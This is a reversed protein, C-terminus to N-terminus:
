QKEMGAAVVASTLKAIETILQERLEEPTGARVNMGLDQLRQLMDPQALAANIDMNLRVIIARPTNAPAAIGNWSTVQYNPIGSEMFTPVNALSPFRTGSSVALAKLEGSKILSMVSAVMDFAVQIDNSKVATILMPTTKFPVITLPLGTTGKFLEAALHQTSGISGGSGINLKDPNTRALSLVDAISNLSSGKNVLLAINFYGIGSVPAFDRVIDYPLSKFLAVSAANGSNILFLTYGDPAAKAVTEAALIQGAGPRNDVIVQQGLSVSLKQAVLRAIVDAVGGAGFGVVFRIPKSPYQQAHANFLAAASFSAVAVCKAFLKLLARISVMRAPVGREASATRYPDRDGVRFPANAGPMVCEM